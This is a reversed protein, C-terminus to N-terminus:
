NKTEILKKTLFELQAKLLNIEQSQKKIEKNQDITYLMLEEIKELLKANIEGLNFGNENVTKRTPINKLHGNENIYKEVEELSPLNYNEEFVYDPWNIQPLIRVEESIINGAVALKYGSTDSTGIGVNGNRNITFYKQGFEIHFDNKNTIDWNGGSTGIRLRAFRNSGDSDVIALTPENKKIELNYAPTDTGIGINGIRYVFDDKLGNETQIREEQSYFNQTLIFIIMISLKYRINM